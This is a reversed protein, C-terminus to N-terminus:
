KASGGLWKVFFARRIDALERNDPSAANEFSHGAGESIVCEVNKAGAKKAKAFIYDAAARPVIKDDAGQLILMPPCNKSMYEAPSALRRLEMNNVDGGLPAYMLRANKMFSKEADASEDVFSTPGSQPVACAIKYKVGKLAADGEFLSQDALSVMFTLHGGASHGYVGIKEPNIGLERSYKTIYRLADMADVVCASMDRKPRSVRAFRYSATAVAIGRSNYYRIEDNFFGYGGFREGGSWGGGHFYVILPYGGGPAAASPYCIDFCLVQEDAVKYPIGFKVNLNKYVDDEASAGFPVNKPAGSSFDFAPLASSFAFAILAFLLKKM